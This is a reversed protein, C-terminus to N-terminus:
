AEAQGFCWHWPEYAYGYRNQPPYSLFFGFGPAHRVLWGYAATQEFEIELPRVGDTTVDVARGSHHESYGPPASVCLIEELSQGRQLKARVIEAQREISRFASVIRIAVGDSHAAGSLARWAAAASPTLRHERGDEGTEAVVLEAPEPHLVLARATITDLPIGLSALLSAVEDARRGDAAKRSNSM